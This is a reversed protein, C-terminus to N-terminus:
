SAIPVVATRAAATEAAPIGSFLLAAAAAPRREVAARVLM